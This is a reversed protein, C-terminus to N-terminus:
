SSPHNEPNLTQSGVKKGMHLLSRIIDEGLVTVGAVIFNYGRLNRRGLFVLSM